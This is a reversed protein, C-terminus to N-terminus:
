FTATTSSADLVHIRRDACGNKPNAAFEVFHDTLESEPDICHFGRDWNQMSTRGSVMLGGTKGTGSSGAYLHHVNNPLSWAPTIASSNLLHRILTTM